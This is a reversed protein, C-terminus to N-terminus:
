LFVRREISQNECQYTVRLYFREIPLRHERFVFVHRGASLEGDNLTMVERGLRDCLVMSVNGPKPVDVTAETEGNLLNVSMPHLRFCPDLEQMLPTRDNTVTITRMPVTADLAATVELAALAETATEEAQTVGLAGVLLTLTLVIIRNLM